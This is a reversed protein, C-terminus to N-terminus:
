PPARVARGEAALFAEVVRRVEVELEDYTWGCAQRWVATTVAAVLRDVSAQTFRVAIQNM